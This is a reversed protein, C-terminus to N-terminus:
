NFIRLFDWVNVFYLFDYLVLKELFFSISRGFFEMIYNFGFLYGEGVVRIDKFKKIDM